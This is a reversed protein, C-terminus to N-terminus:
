SIMKQKEKRQRKFHYMNQDAEFVISSIDNLPKESFAYGISVVPIRSDKSRLIEIERM